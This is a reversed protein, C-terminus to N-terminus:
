TFKKAWSRHIECLGHQKIAAIHYKTGYGAHREFGYQPFRAAAEDMEEDRIVKAIISACSIELVSADGKVIAEGVGAYAPPVDKGDFLYQVDRALDGALDKASLAMANLTAERINVRDIEIPDARSISFYGLNRIISAAESRRKRSSFAKSDMAVSRLSEIETPSLNPKLTFACVVLDGAICGRGVEDIGIIM